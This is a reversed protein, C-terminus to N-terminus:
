YALPTTSKASAIGLHLYRAQQVEEAKHILYNRSLNSCFSILIMKIQKEQDLFLITHLTEPAGVGEPDGEHYNDIM